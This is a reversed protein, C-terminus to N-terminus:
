ETTGIATVLDLSRSLGVGAGLTTLLSHPQKDDNLRAHNRALRSRGALRTYRNGSRPHRGCLPAIGLLLGAIGLLWAIGLLRLLRAIGLLLLWLLRAIGLLLLRAIGLLM